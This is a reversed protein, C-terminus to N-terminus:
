MNEQSYLIDGLSECDPCPAAQRLPSKASMLHRPRTKGTVSAITLGKFDLRTGDPLHSQVGDQLNRFIREMSRPHKQARERPMLGVEKRRM